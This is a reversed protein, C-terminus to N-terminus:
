KMSLLTLYSADSFVETGLTGLAMGVSSAVGSGSSSGSPDQNPYYAGFVQGGYASWGNSTNDSRFNAWQSLNAKGLIIVGAARLKAAVTADRPVTSGLLAYSGALFTSCRSWTPM